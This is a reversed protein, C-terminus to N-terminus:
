YFLLVGKPAILKNPGPGLPARTYIVKLKKSGKLAEIYAWLARANYENFPGKPGGKVAGEPRRPQKLQKRADDGAEKDSLRLLCLQRRLINGRLPSRLFFVVHKEKESQILM